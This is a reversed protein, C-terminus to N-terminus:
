MASPNLSRFLGLKTQHSSSVNKAKFVMNHSKFQLCTVTVTFQTFSLGLPKSHAKNFYTSLNFDPSFNNMQSYRVWYFM